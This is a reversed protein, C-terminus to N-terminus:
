EARLAVMPDVSTASRAPIWVAALAIAALLLPVGAFVIRDHQGVGFLFGSLMRTAGLASAIGVAVGVATLKMGQALVM